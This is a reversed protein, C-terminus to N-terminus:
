KSKSPEKDSDKKPRGRAKKIIDPLQDAIEKKSPEGKKKPRGPKRKEQQQTDTDSENSSRSPSDLKAKKGMTHPHNGNDLAVNMRKKSTPRNDINTATDSSAHTSTSNDSIDSTSSSM